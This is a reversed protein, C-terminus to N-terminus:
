KFARTKYQLQQIQIVTETNSFTFVFKQKKNRNIQNFANKITVDLLFIGRINYKSNSTKGSLYM